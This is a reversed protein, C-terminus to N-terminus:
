VPPSPNSPMSDRLSEGSSIPSARTAAQDPPAAHVGPEAGLATLMSGAVVCLGGLWHGAGLSEATFAGPALASVLTSFCLTAVPTLALVAAVRGAEVHELAAAFAGYGVLTNATCFAVLAWGALPVDLLAAPRAGPLLVLACGAYIWCMLGASAHHHLLQKQALGYVGWTFAAFALLASGGLYPELAGAQSALQARFFLGLGAVLVGVGLWQLRTYREGFVAIGGLGLLLPALQILVQANGPGTRDLGLLFGIFNAALGLVAVALLWGSGRLSAPAALRGRRGLWLALLGASAAFRVVTLTVPDVFVLTAKLALPLAGWVLM